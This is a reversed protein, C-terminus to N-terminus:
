LVFEVQCTSVCMTNGGFRIHVSLEGHLAEFEIFKTKTASFKVSANDGCSYFCNERIM